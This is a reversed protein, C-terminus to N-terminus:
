PEGRLMRAAHEYADTADRYPEADRGLDALHRLADAKGELLEAMRWPTPVGLHACCVTIAVRPPAGHVLWGNAPSLVEGIAYGNQNVRVALDGRTLWPGPKQCYDSVWQYGEVAYERALVELDTIPGSVVVGRCDRRCPGPDPRHDPHDHSPKRRAPEHSPDPRRETM